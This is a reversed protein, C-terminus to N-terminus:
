NEGILIGITKFCVFDEFHNVGIFILLNICSFHPATLFFLVGQYLCILMLGSVIVSLNLCPLLQCSLYGFFICYKEQFSVVYPSILFMIRYNLIVIEIRCPKIVFKVEEEILEFGVGEEDDGEKLLQSCGYHNKRLSLSGVTPEADFRDVEGQPSAIEFHVAQDFDAVQGLADVNVVFFIQQFHLDSVMSGGFHQVKNQEFLTFAKVSIIELVYRIYILAPLYIYPRKPNHHQLQEISSWQGPFSSVAM